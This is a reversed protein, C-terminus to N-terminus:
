ALDRAVIADIAHYASLIAGEQWGQLHSLHEGAFFITDDATLLVDATSIGWGGLQFPVNKWAVSIARSAEQAFEPHVASAQNLVTAHRQPPLQSSLAAGAPGDFVYAGLVIGDAAGPDNSPYWIQTIDQDTWSVGGFINHEREWFRRSQFAVRVATTYQFGAIESRHAASFDNAIGPLVSAPICVVCYDAEVQVDAGMRRYIVRTGNPTKRIATVEADFVISDALRSELASAIRDMGGVPQLMSPQQQLGESFSARQTWFVDAVLDRLALPELREARQRSGTTEQGPFGARTSGPYNYASDLDGFAQLMRLVNHKDAASLEQDLADQNIATALLRAIHGRTDADIRRKLQAHGAFAGPQHVLAARNDNAFLELPVAFERCYGLLFEHHHAIRSPGANFYLKDSVDFLCQQSSASEEVIDGARLTRNRGGARNRAELVTCNYGLRQMELATTMGAIGAGLITVTKGAGVNGPWDGPRPSAPRGPPPTVPPSGPPPAASSSGCAGLSSGIGLAAMTRLM